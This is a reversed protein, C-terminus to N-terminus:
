RDDEPRREVHTVLWYGGLSAEYSEKSFVGIHRANAEGLHVNPDSPARDPLLLVGFVPMWAIMREGRRGDWVARVRRGVLWTWDVSERTGSWGGWDNQTLPERELDRMPVNHM